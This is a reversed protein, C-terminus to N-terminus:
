IQIDIFRSNFSWRPTYIFTYLANIENLLKVPCIYVWCRSSCRYTEKTSLTFTFVFLVSYLGNNKQLYLIFIQIIELIKRKEGMKNVVSQNEIEWRDWVVYLIHYNSSQITLEALAFSFVCQLTNVFVTRHYSTWCSRIIFNTITRILWVTSSDKML